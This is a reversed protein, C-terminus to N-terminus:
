GAIALKALFKTSHKQINKQNESIQPKQLKNKHVFHNLLSRLTIPTTSDNRSTMNINKQNYSALASLIGVLAFKPKKSTKDSIERMQTNLTCLHKTEIAKKVAM